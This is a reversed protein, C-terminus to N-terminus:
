DQCGKVKSYNSILELLKQQYKKKKRKRFLCDCQKHVLVAKKGKGIYRKKEQTTVSTRVGVTIDFLFPLHLCGLEAKWQRWGWGWKAEFGIKKKKKVRLDITM